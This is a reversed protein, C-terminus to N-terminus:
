MKRMTYSDYISCRDHLISFRKMQIMRTMASSRDVEWRLIILDIHTEHQPLEHKVDHAGIVGWGGGYVCNPSYRHVHDKLERDVYVHLPHSLHHDSSPCADLPVM